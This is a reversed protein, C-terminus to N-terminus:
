PMSPLHAPREGSRANGRVQSGPVVWTAANHPRSPRPAAPSASIHQDVTKASLTLRAAIEANSLGEVLLELVDAQRPTLGAAHQATARCPGRPVKAGGRRRLAGARRRHQGPRAEDAWHADEVVM